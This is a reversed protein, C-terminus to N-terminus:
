FSLNVGFMTRKPTPYTARDVGNGAGYDCSTTAPDFGMYKTLTLYNDLSVYFRLSNVKIKTLLSKPLSYGLQMQALRFYSGDMVVASSELVKADNQMNFYSPFRSNDGAKRWLNEYLEVPMNTTKYNRSITGFWIDNGYSGSGFAVLDFGKFEANLTIGYTFLPDSSGIKIRDDSTIAEDDDQNEFKAEGTEPDVGLYKYGYFYWLPEGESMRTCYSGGYPNSGNIYEVGNALKELRNSNHSINGSIGYHFDGIRDKWSLELEVGKNVVIGSNITLTSWGTTAPMPSEVLLGDTTKKYLDVSASLRDSFFRADVGLDIQKSTEWKLGANTMQEPGAGMSLKSPDRGDLNALFSGYAVDASYYYGGRLISVNGNTGWSGRVKLHSIKSKDVSAMFPENMVNWGFSVSPFYGWRNDAPLYSEDFADARFSAQVYYRNDYNYGLRGFYSISSHETPRGNISTLSQFDAYAPYFFLPNDNDKFSNFAVLLYDSHEHIYSIGAMADINHKKAISLNYNVFNDWQYSLGDSKSGQYSPEAQTKTDYTYVKGQMVNSTAYTKYGLKSTYVLGKIPNFNLYLNGTLQNTKEYNKESSAFNIMPHDISAFQSKSIWKDGLMLMPDGADYTAKFTLPMQSPDTYFAPTLPDYAALRFFAKDQTSGGPTLGGINWFVAKDVKSFTNNTGVTLWDKIKYEANVQFNLRKYYDMDGVMMGDSNLNSISTYFSGRDNAGEFSVKHKQTSGGSYLEKLWNTDTKGDWYTNLVSPAIFQSDTMIDVYQEANLMKPVFGCQEITYSGDYSIKSHGKTGKKTTVLVVGNGAQAGYIAASAGDKLVEISEIDQPDITDLDPVLIGDVVYLPATAEASNSSLGRLRIQGFTGPMGSTQIVQVGAVKGSIASTVDAVSRNALAESKVSSISGTLDSKKQVGYGIVVSQDILETDTKLTVKVPQGNFAVEVPEYGLSEIELTAGNKVNKLSFSGNADTITGNSTGKVLVSAGIVPQGDDGIISGTAVKTQAFASFTVLVAGLAAMLMKALKM